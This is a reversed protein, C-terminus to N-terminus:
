KPRAIDNWAQIVTQLDSPLQAFNLQAYCVSTRKSSMLTSVVDASEAPPPYCLGDFQRFQQNKLLRRFSKVSETPIRGMVQADSVPLDPTTKQLIRGNKLLLTERYRGDIGGTTIARFLVKRPLRQPEQELLQSQLTFLRDIQSGAEDWLALSGSNNTRYVWQQRQHTVTVRWGVVLVEQCFEGPPALGLCGDSWLRPEAKTLTLDQAKINWRSEIAQLVAPKVTVPLDSAIASQELVQGGQDIATVSKAPQGLAPMTLGGHLWLICLSPLSLLLSRM